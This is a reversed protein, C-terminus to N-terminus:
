TSGCRAACGARSGTPAGSGCSTICTCGARRCGRGAAAGSRSTTTSSTCIPRAPPAWPASSATATSPSRSFGCTTAPPRSSPRGAGAWAPSRATTPSAPTPRSCSGCGGGAASRRPATLRSAMGGGRASATARDFAGHELCWRYTRRVGDELDYRPAWGLARIRRTDLVKRPMGDPKSPDFELEADLGVVRMVLEALERVTADSGTGVNYVGEGIGREMCLVCAAALDDVYLLERRPTGSGWVRLRGACAQKAAHAKRLLAPLMHSSALDFNDNPGYLNTPMLAVYRTGHQANFAECLKLGAVKAIAYPENTPEFPGTRLATAPIPQPADRPYICSSGLFLLRRVGARLAAHLVNAEIMLNRYLFDGRRTDNALIGGVEAAALFVYEPAAQRMFRGVAAQDTLDLERRTRTVLNAYGAARLARVLASGVMGRHGAVYIRSAPGVADSM